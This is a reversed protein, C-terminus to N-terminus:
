EKVWIQIPPVVLQDNPGVNVLWADNGVVFPHDTTLPEALTVADTQASRVPYFSTFHKDTIYTGRYISPFQFRADTTLMTPSTAPSISTIHARGVLLADRTRLLLDNGERRAEVIPHATQRVSNRFHVICDKLTQVVDSRIDQTMRVRIERKQPDVQVVRGLIM